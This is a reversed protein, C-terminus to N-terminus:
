ITKDTTKAIQDDVNNIESRMLIYLPILSSLFTIIIVANNDKNDKNRTEIALVIPYIYLQSISLYGDNDVNIHALIDNQVM